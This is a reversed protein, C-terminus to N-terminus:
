PCGPARLASPSATGPSWQGATTSCAWPLPCYRGRTAEPTGLYLHVDVGHTGVVQLETLAATTDAVGVRNLLSTTRHLGALTRGYWPGTEAEMGGPTFPRIWDTRLTLASALVLLTEGNVAIPMGDIQGQTREAAWSDLRSRDDALDGTLRGHVGTPLRDRWAPEVPLTDRTWLGLATSLGRTAGLVSLLNQATPAADQAPIGLADSLERRAPGAAGDALLGLLPWVGAPALVTGDEPLAAAWRATLGNVARVTDHSAM